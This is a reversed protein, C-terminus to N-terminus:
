KKTDIWANVKYSRYFGRIRVELGRTIYLNDAEIYYAISLKHLYQMFYCIQTMIHLKTSLSITLSNKKLFTLLPVEEEYLYLMCNTLYNPPNKPIFHFSM